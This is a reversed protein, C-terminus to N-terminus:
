KMIGIKFAYFGHSWSREKRGMESSQGDTFINSRSRRGNMTSASPVHEEWYPKFWLMGGGRDEGMETLTTEGLLAIAIATSMEFANSM